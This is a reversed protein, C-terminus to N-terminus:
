ILELQRGRAVAQTRTHVDLKNFINKLHQKITSPAVIMKAAIEKNTLGKALWQLVELERETLPSPLNQNKGSTQDPKGHAFAEILTKAYETPLNIPANPNNQFVYEKLTQHMPEGLALFTRVFGEPQALQLAQSLIEFAEANQKMNRLALTQLALIEILRGFRKGAQAQAAQAEMLKYAQEPQDKALLLHAQAIQERETGGSCAQAWKNAIEIDGISLWLRMGAAWFETRVALQIQHIQLIHEAIQLADLAGQINGRAQRTRVLALDGTMLYGGHKKRVADGLNAHAEAEELQNRELLLEVMGFEYSCRLRYELSRRDALWQYTEDLLQEAQHLQGQAIRITALECKAPILIMSQNAAEGIAIMNTLARSAKKLDDCAYYTDALTYEAMGKGTIHSDPLHELALRAMTIAPQSEGKLNAAYARIAAIHGKLETNRLTVGSIQNEVETLLLGAEEPKGSIILTNARHLKIWPQSEVVHIPLKEIWRLLVPVDNRSFMSAINEDILVAAKQYDKASMAHRMAEELNGQQHHWDSARRHLAQIQAASKKQNLTSKLLDVFLHHYRYWKREDDLPIMFLNARELQELIAQSDQKQPNTEDGSRVANCLEACLRDLIATKFLFEQVAPTQQALVEEMLYDLIFRNTGSFARIFADQESVKQRGQMSLAALQLGAIWGETRGKLTTVAEPSLDLSMAQNFFQAAEEVTFKLDADRIEVIQSRARWRAISFPPDVRTICIIHMQAPQYKILFEVAQHNWENDILHYDDLVILFPQQDPPILGIIETILNEPAPPQPAELQGTVSPSTKIGIDALAAALYGSFRQPLNDGQDLSIWATPPSKERIWDSVLTTKGSGAKASVLTLLNSPQLSEDLRAKLRPRPVLNPRSPPITLKTKLYPRGM